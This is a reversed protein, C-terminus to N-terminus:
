IKANKAIANGSEEDESLDISKLRKEFEIDLKREKSKLDGEM